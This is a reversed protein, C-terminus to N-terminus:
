SAPLMDIQQEVWAYAQSLDAKDPATVSVSVEYDGKWAVVWVEENQLPDSTVVPMALCWSDPLAPDTCVRNGAANIGYELLGAAKARTPNTYKLVVADAAVGGPMTWSRHEGGQFGDSGLWQTFENGVPEEYQVAYDGANLNQTSQYSSSTTDAAGAPLPLLCGTASGCGGQVPAALTPASLPLLGVPETKVTADVKSLQSEAWSDAVYAEFPGAFYFWGVVDVNGVTDTFNFDTLGDIEKSAYWAQAGSAGPITHSIAVVGDDWAPEGLHQSDLQVAGGATVTQILYIDAQEDADDITWAEHAIGTVGDAEFDALVSNQTAESDTDWWLHAVQSSTLTTASSWRKDHPDIWAASYAPVPMLCSTLRGTCAVQQTGPATPPPDAPAPPATRLSALETGAWTKLDQADFTKPSSYAVNLVVDGVAVSYAAVVNGEADPKVSAHAAGTSDGKIGVTQGPYAALIEGQRVANWAQAGKQTHFALLVIDIDGGDVANWDTHVVTRMGDATLENTADSDVGPSDDVVNSAFLSATSVTQQPWSDKGSAATLRVAGKPAKILCGALDSPKCKVAAVVSDGTRGPLLAIVGGTVLAAAAVVAAVTWLVRKRKRKRAAPDVPAAPASPHPDESYTGLYLDPDPVKRGPDSLQWVFESGDPSGANGTAKETDKTGDASTQEPFDSGSM